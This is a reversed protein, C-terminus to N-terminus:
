ACQREHCRENRQQRTTWRKMHKEGKQRREMVFALMLFLPKIIRATNAFRVVLTMKLNKLITKAVYARREM